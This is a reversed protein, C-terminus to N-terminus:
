ARARLEERRRPATFRREWLHWSGLAALVSLALAALGTPDHPRLWLALPYNWLYLGYSIRGLGALLRVADSGTEQWHAWAVLLVGTLAAIVVGGLLYTALHGRLPLMGLAVLAALAVWVAAGGVPPRRRERGDPRTALRLWGGAVLACAWTTPLAYTLDPDHHFRAVALWCAAVSLLGALTVGRRVGRRGGRRHLALLLVPWLLYFQEEVALTWLHFVDAGAHAFPLDATWTLAVVVSRLLRDREGIPDLTLTVLVYGAVLLVLAPVLRRFRRRYFGALDLGGTRDLEEALLGTILYGSLTFFVVVGVLGAGPFLDPWTHRALVLSIALGRLVDLGLVRGRPTLM